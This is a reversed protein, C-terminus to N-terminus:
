GGGQSLKWSNGFGKQEKKLIQKMLKESIAKWHTYKHSLTAKNENTDTVLIIRPFSNWQSRTLRVLVQETLMICLWSIHFWSCTDRAFEQQMEKKQDHLAAECGDDPFVTNVM